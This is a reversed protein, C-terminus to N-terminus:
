RGAPCRHRVSYGVWQVTERHEPRGTGFFQPTKCGTQEACGPDFQFVDLIELRAYIEDLKLIYTQREAPGVTVQRYATKRGVEDTQL